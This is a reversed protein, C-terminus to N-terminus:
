DDGAQDGATRRGRDASLDKGELPKVEALQAGLDRMATAVMGDDPVSPPAELESGPDWRDTLTCRLGIPEGLVQEVVQLVKARNEDAEMKERLIDSAFGIVLEGRRLGLPKSSNLLAQAQPDVSRVASLIESWKDLVQQFSAGGATGSAKAAPREVAARTDSEPNQPAPDPGASQQDVSSHGPNGAGAKGKPSAASEAGALIREMFAMELGLGPQWDVVTQLAASSFGDIARLLDARAMTEALESMRSTVGLSREVLERNGVQIMLLARLYDVVQRALQRPDTGADIARQIITLGQAPDRAVLAQLLEVVAEAAATGLVQRAQEVTVHDGTSTLLDLLSIADRLSGTAQRAILEVAGQDVQMGEQGIKDRLMAVMVDVPIRRFEHRQCRSLVTAPIKHVETTALIFIAHPPPEELTKLLANFAATSLMHVEDVIYVKHRGQNPSFNIRDRLDRVDDVSTNSAADIEILDIFRGSNLALCFECENCPRAAPDDALCNAAKALLRATTTKGTGRPGAFLYAHGIRDGKVTNRLTEIVHDQGVVSDWDQPRWRRYLAAPM